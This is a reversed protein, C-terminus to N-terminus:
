RLKRGKKLNIEGQQEFSEKNKFKFLIDRLMSQGLNIKSTNCHKKKM